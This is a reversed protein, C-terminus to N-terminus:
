ARYNFYPPLEQLRPQKRDKDSILVLEPEAPWDIGLTPDNWLLGKDHEPSYFNSVKYLVETDPEL